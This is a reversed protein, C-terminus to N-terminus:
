FSSVMYGSFHPVQFEVRKSLLNLRADILENVLAVGRQQDLQSNEAFYGGKLLLNGLLGTGLLYNTKTLDQSFTLPKAFKTGHPAFDYAVIRGAIVTVKITMTDRPLAGKPVTLNLGQGQVQIVAGTKNNVLQSVTYAKTPPNKWTVALVPKLLGRVVGLLGDLLGPSAEQASVQVASPATPSEGCASVTLVAAVLVATWRRV